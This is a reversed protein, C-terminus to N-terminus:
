QLGREYRRQHILVSETDSYYLRMGLAPNDTNAPPVM